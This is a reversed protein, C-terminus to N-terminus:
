LIALGGESTEKYEKKLDIGTKMMASIVQDFSIRHSSDSFFAYNAADIARSAAIANREICPIQVYGGVPDCTLGLHHEMAIEAAYETKMPRAGRLKAAAAAAMSCAAGIEGQCGVEAGSISANHKILNGILGAIALARLINRDCIDYKKQMYTLVAPLVGASGCTPATVIKGGAANEEATALAYATIICKNKLDDNFQKSKMFFSSAKRPLKLNGPLVGETKLGRNITEQMKKWIDDLFDWIEEGESEEVYEWLEKGEKKCWELIDHLKDFEYVQKKSTEKENFDKLSGGGISFVRWTEGIKIDNEDFAEFDMGNPHEKLFTKPKFIIDTKIPSFTKEIVVDTLHGKGTAALSGYLTVKYFDANPYKEKFISAAKQPGMTHSSSPGNGHKFLEKLSEM